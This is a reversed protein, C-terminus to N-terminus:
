GFEAPHGIVQSHRGRSEASSDVESFYSKLLWKGYRCSFTGDEAARGAATKYEHVELLTKRYRRRLFFFFFFM